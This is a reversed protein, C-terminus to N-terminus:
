LRKFLIISVRIHNFEYNTVNRKKKLIFDTYSIEHVNKGISYLTCKINKLLTLM